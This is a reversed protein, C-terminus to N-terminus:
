VLNIKIPMKRIMLLIAENEKFNRLDEISVVDGCLKIIDNLTNVDNSFLYLINRSFGKITECIEIGYADKLSSFSKIFLTFNINDSYTFLKIFNKIPKINSFNDLLFNFKVNSSKLNCFLEKVLIPIIINCLDNFDNKVFIATKELNNIDFTTSSLFNLVSNKTVFSSMYDNFVAIISGKTDDPTDLVGSLFNFTMSKEDVIKIDIKKSYDFINKLNLDIKNELLYLATGIFLKSACNCWFPDSGAPSIFIYNAINELQDITLDINKSYSEIASELPNYKDSSDVNDLDLLVIKYGKDKLLDYSKNYLNGKLDNVLFSEGVCSINNIMPFLIKDVNQKQDEGVILTSYNNNFVREENNLKFPIGFVKENTSIELLEDNNLFRVM